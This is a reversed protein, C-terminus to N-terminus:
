HRVRHLSRLALGGVGQISVWERFLDLIRELEEESQREEHAALVERRLPCLLLGAPAM